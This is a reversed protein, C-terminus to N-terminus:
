IAAARAKALGGAPALPMLDATMQLASDNESEIQVNHKTFVGYGPKTVTITYKGAPPLAFFKGQANAVRTMILRNTGEEFLRVVALDIPVHTIADRVLGYAPRVRVELVVKLIVLVVYLVEIGLYLGSTLRFVLVTNMLAGLLFIPWSAARAVRQTTQWLHLLRVRGSTVEKGTPKMAVTLSVPRSGDKVTLKGGSYLIGTEPKVGGAAPAFTFGEAQVGITYKGAPLLTPFEGKDNTRESAKLKGDEGYILVRAGAIPEGTKHHVVKGKATEGSGSPSQYQRQKWSSAVREILSVGTSLLSLALFVFNLTKLIALLPSTTSVEEVPPPVVEEGEGVEVPATSPAPLPQVAITVTDAASAGRPDRVTLAFIYTQADDGASFSPTATRNSILDIEPGSLQRWNYVLSDGDPDFSAEGDLVVLALPNVVKDVGADAIPAQNDFLTSPPTTTPTPTITPVPTASVAPTPTASPDPTPTASTVPSTTPTPSTGPSTTPTPSSTPTGEGSGSTTGTTSAAAVENGFNDVAYLKFTYTTGSSLGTVTTSTAEIDAMAPDDDEDWVDSNKDLVEVRDEGYYLSYTFTSSDTPQNWTVTMQDSAASSAAVNSLGQPAENDVRFTSSVAASGTQVDDRPIIRLQVTNSDGTIPGGTNESSKTDWTMTVTVSSNDDTDIANSTGVQYGNSNKLDASGASVSMNTIWPKYWHQGDTSYQVRIRTPDNDGDSIATNFTVRGSGDTSQSISGPSTAAPRALEREYWWVDGRFHDGTIFDFDNDLDVDIVFVGYVSQLNSALTVETFETSGNNDLWVVRNGDQDTAVVDEDGDEDLDVTVVTKADIDDGILIRDYSVNDQNRYLVVHDSGGEALVIDVKGDLTVDAVRIHRANTNSEDIDFRSWSYGDSTTWRQLGDRGSTVVDPYGNGNTDGVTVATVGADSSLTTSTFSGSGNNMWRRLVYLEAEKTATIIDPAGDRDIDGAYAFADNGTGITTGSFENGGLNRYWKVSPTTGKLTVLLDSSDDNNLDIIQIREGKLEDLVKLSYTEDGNNVYVKIGDVGATAIDIDGDSDIDSAAVGQVGVADGRNGVAHPTFDLAGVSIPQSFYRWGGIILCAILSFSAVFRAIPLMAAFVSRRRWIRLRARNKGYGIRQRRGSVEM